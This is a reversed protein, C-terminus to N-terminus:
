PSLFPTMMPQVARKGVWTLIVYNETVVGQLLRDLNSQNSHSKTVM